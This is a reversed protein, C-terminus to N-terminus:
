ATRAFDGHWKEAAACYVRHAEEKTSYCGLHKYGGDVGIRVMYKNTDKRLVVGKVGCSNNAQMGRNYQNQSHTAQRLNGWKSNNVDRDRHDVLIEPWEGTMYLWALNHIQYKKYDICVFPHKDEHSRKGARKTKVGATKGAWRQNWGGRKGDMEPRWKWKFEGTESNYDLVSRLYEATIFPSSSVLKVM